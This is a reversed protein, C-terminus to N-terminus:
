ELFRKAMPFLINNELHVHQHLDEEFEKLEAISVRFTTCAGDPANYNNTLERIRFMDAGADDHEHEMMRTARDIIRVEDPLAQSSKVAAEASRIAPFLVMEEKQMHATLEEKVKSFRSFVEIMEPFRDGHKFAVKELHSHLQPMIQKVYAHHRDVIHQSLQAASLKAFPIPICCQGGNLADLECAIEAASLGKEECAEALTRKGKCCYDLQYKELLSAARHDNTVIGALTEHIHQTM